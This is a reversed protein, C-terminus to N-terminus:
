KPCGNMYSYHSTFSFGGIFTGQLANFALGDEWLHLSLFTVRCFSVSCRTFLWSTKFFISDYLAKIKLILFLCKFDKLTYHSFPTPFCIIESHMDFTLLSLTLFQALYRGSSGTLIIASHTDRPKEFPSVSSIVVISLCNHLYMLM